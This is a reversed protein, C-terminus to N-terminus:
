RYRGRNRVTEIGSRWVKVSTETRIWIRVNGEAGREVLVDELEGGEGVGVM